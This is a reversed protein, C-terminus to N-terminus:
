KLWWLGPLVSDRFALEDRMNRIFARYIWPYTEVFQIYENLDTRRTEWDNLLEPNRIRSSSIRDSMHSHIDSLISVLEKENGEDGVNNVTERLSKVLKKPIRIM